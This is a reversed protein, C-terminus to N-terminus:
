LNLLDFIDVELARAISVLINLSPNERDGTELLAIYSPAINARKALERQSLSKRTRLKKINKDLSM